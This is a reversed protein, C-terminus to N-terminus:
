GPRRALAAPLQAGVVHAYVAVIDRVRRMEIRQSGASHEELVGHGRHGDREGGMRRQQRSLVGRTVTYAVVAQVPDGILRLGECFHQCVASVLGSGHDAGHHQRPLGAQPLAKRM